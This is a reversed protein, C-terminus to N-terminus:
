QREKWGPSTLPSVLQRDKWCYPLKTCVRSYCFGMCITTNIAVCFDCEPKEAYLTFDTPLCMPVTPSFMLFLLWCNLVATEMSLWVKVLWYSRCLLCLYLFFLQCGSLLRDFTQYRLNLKGQPTRLIVQRLSRTVQLASPARVSDM